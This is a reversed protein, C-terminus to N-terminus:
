DVCLGWYVRGKHIDVASCMWLFIWGIDKNCSRPQYACTLRMVEVDETFLCCRVNWCSFLRRVNRKIVYLRSLSFVITGFAGVDTNPTAALSRDAAPSTAFISFYTNLDCFVRSVDRPTIRAAREDFISLILRPPTALPSRQEEAIPPYM